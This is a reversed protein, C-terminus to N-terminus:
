TTDRVGEWCATETIRDYIAGARNADELSNIGFAEEASLNITKISKGEGAAIVVIDTLYHEGSVASPTIKPIAETLWGARVGFITPNVELIQRQSESADKYEVINTVSGSFDRVVRGFRELTSRWERYDEVRVVGMVLADPHRRLTSVVAELTGSQILPQDCSLILVHDNHELYPLSAKVASATGTIEKQEVYTFEAGLESRVDEAKHGVVVIPSKTGRARTAAEIIWRILPKDKFRFLAKPAQSRMRTGKGAALIVPQIMDSEHESGIHTPQHRQDTNLDRNRKL